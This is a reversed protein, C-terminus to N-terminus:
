RFTYRSPPNRGLLLHLSCSPPRPHTPPQIISHALAVRFPCGLLHPRVPQRSISTESWGPGPARRVAQLTPATPEGIAFLPSPHPVGLGYSSQPGLAAPLSLPEPGAEGAAMAAPSPVTHDSTPAAVSTGGLTTRVEETAPSMMRLRCVEGEGTLEAVPAPAPVTAPEPLPAPVPATVPAPVPAPAPMGSSAAPPPTQRPPGLPRLLPLPLAPLPDSPFTLPCPLPPPSVSGLLFVLFCPCPPVLSLIACLPKVAPSKEATRQVRPLRRGGARPSAM